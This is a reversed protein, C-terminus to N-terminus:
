LPGVPSSDRRRAGGSWPCRQGLRRLSGGPCTPSDPAGVQIPIYETLERLGVEYGDLIVLCSKKEMLRVKRGPEVASRADTQSLLQRQRLRTIDDYPHHLLKLPNRPPILLLLPLLPNRKIGLGPM